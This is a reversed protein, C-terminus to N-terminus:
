LDDQEISSLNEMIIELLKRSGNAKKPDGLPDCIAKVEKKDKGDKMIVSPATGTARCYKRFPVVSALTQLVANAFCAHHHNGLGRPKGGVSSASQQKEINANYKVKKTAEPTAEKDLSRKGPVCPAKNILQTPVPTEQDASADARQITESAKNHKAKARPETILQLPKRVEIDESRAVIECSETEHDSSTSTEPSTYAKAPKPSDGTELTRCDNATEHAGFNASSEKPQCVKPSKQVERTVKQSRSKPDSHSKVIMTHGPSHRTIVATTQRRGHQETKDVVSKKRMSGLSMYDEFKLVPEVERLDTKQKKVAEDGIVAADRKRKNFNARREATRSTNIRHRWLHKDQELKQKKTLKRVTGGDLKRKKNSFM